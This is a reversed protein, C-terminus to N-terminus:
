RYIINVSPIHTISSHNGCVMVDEVHERLGEVDQLSMQVCNSVYELKRLWPGLLLEVKSHDLNSKRKLNVEIEVVNASM